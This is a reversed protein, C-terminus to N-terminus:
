LHMKLNLNYTDLKDSNGIYNITSESNIHMQTQGQYKDIIMKAVESLKYKLKYCIDIDKHLKANIIYYDIIKIFDNIHFFDFYRNNDILISKNNAASICCMKIFRSEKENNSFVNFIRLNYFNNTNADLREIINKSFGYYDDPNSDMINKSGNIDTNRDYSAASALNIFKKFKHKFDILNFFMKINNYFVNATDIQTRNGGMISTHIVVDFWDHGDFYKQIMKKDLLNLEAKNPNYIQYKNQLTNKIETALFGSGGTILIKM